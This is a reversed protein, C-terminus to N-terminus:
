VPKYKTLQKESQTKPNNKFDAKSITKGYHVLPQDTM